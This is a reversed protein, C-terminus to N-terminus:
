LEFLLIKTRQSRFSTHGHPLQRKRDLIKCLHELFLIRKEKIKGTMPAVSLQCEAIHPKRKWTNQSKDSLKRAFILNHNQIATIGTIKLCFTCSSHWQLVARFGKRPMSHRNQCGGGRILHRSEILTSLVTKIRSNYIHRHEWPSINTLPTNGKM